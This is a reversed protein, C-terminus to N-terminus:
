VINGSYTTADATAYEQFDDMEGDSGYCDAVSYASAPNSDLGEAYAALQISSGGTFTVASDAYAYLVYSLTTGTSGSSGGIEPNPSLGLNCVASGSADGSATYAQFQEGHCGPYYYEVTYICSSSTNLLQAHASGGFVIFAFILTVGIWNISPRFPRPKV